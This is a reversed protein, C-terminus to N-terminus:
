EQALSPDEALQAKLVDDSAHKRKPQQQYPVRKKTIM